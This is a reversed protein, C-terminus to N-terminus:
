HINIWGDFYQKAYPFNTSDITLMNGKSDMIVVSKILFSIIESKKCIYQHFIFYKTQCEISCYFANKCNSCM